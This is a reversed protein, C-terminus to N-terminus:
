LESQWFGEHPPDALEVAVLASGSHTRRSHMVRALLSVATDALGLEVVSRRPLVGKMELLAGHRSVDRTIAEERVYTGDVGHWAVWVRQVTPVRNSRRKRQASAVPTKALIATM